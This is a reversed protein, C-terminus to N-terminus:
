LQYKGSYDKMQNLIIDRVFSGLVLLHEQDKSSDYLRIHKEIEETQNRTFLLEEIETEAVKEGTTSDLISNGGQEHTNGGLVIAHEETSTDHLNLDPIEGGRNFTLQGFQLNSQAIGDSINLSQKLRQKQISEKKIRKGYAIEGVLPVAELARGEGLAKFQHFPDAFRATTNKTRSSGDGQISKSTQVGAQALAGWWPGFASAIGVGAQDIKNNREESPDIQDTNIGSAAKIPKKRKPYIM